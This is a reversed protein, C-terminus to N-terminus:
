FAADAPMGPKLLRDPNPLAIEVAYFTNLREEATTVNRPTFEPQDGVRVVRGEFARGPFSDVRVQVTVGLAVEGVRNEPVYVVLEVESLDAVTLVTAGPAALEGNRLVQQLVTGNIPSVLTCQEVQVQLVEAEAEAQAVAAEAVALEETMPGDLLDDLQAQAVAVGEEAIQYLGEAANAQAILHLPEERIVWLWNLMRQAAIQDSEAAALAEEAARVELDAIDREFGSRQDRLLRESAIQAEVLEVGQEALQVQTYARSIQADLDQPNEIADLANEWSSLAGDRQAEALALAAQLATIEEVRPGAGVLGYDSRATAVAAEAQALQLLLPTADLIVIVEGMQVEDGDKARVEIIRGGLESAMRVERAQISGSAILQSPEPEENPASSPSAVKEVAQCGAALFVLLVLGWLWGSRPGKKPKIRAGQRHGARPRPGSKGAELMTEM